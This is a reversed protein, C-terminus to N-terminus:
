ESLIAEKIPQQFLETADIIQAVTPSFTKLLECAVAMTLYYRIRIRLERLVGIKAMYDSVQKDLLVCAAYFKCNIGDM